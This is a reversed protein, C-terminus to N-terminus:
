GCCISTKRFHRGRYIVVGLVTAMTSVATGRTGNVSHGAKSKSELVFAVGEKSVTQVSLIQPQDFTFLM